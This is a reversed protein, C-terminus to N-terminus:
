DWLPLGSPVTAPVISRMDLAAPDTLAQLFALLARIEKEKLPTHSDLENREAIALRRAEDEMVVFDLTDLDTRSPLTAQEAQYDHLSSVPDLHHRLVAELSDYAGSHGYPASLAVNRLSPTRFKFRDTSDATVRERGFDDHGDTHGGSNDGKGPGIQPMAIAHFEHDTQFTGSHCDGCGGKGYFVNMGLKATLSLASNDGRLYRDFPSNDFRWAHAEFAAIANAAHVFTIDAADLIESPYAAIFLDVYDPIARLKGAILEWVGEPGSLRGLSAADAQPNEGAQGAMEAGSTVPFMAQVALVNSLGEPLYDGAPSRFGSPSFSDEEVRGDHFLRVFERAGLNFVPPANRPVREFVAHEGFGNDRTIGLGRGGEGVSLSLGDGTAALPHHCSACSINLNGSLIKDFFLLQGLEVQAQSPTGDEHFSSNTAARINEVASASLATSILCLFLSTVVANIRTM